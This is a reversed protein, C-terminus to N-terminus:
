AQNQHHQCECFEHFENLFDSNVDVHEAARHSLLASVLTQGLKSVQVRGM